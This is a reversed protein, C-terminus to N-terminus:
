QLLCSRVLTLLKITVESSASEERLVAKYNELTFARPFFYVGGKMFDLGKNFSGVVVYWLPYLTLLLIVIMFIVNAADFIKSARSQKGVIM